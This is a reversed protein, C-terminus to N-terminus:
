KLYKEVFAFLEDVSMEVLQIDQLLQLKRKLEDREAILTDRVKRYDDKETRNCSAWKTFAHVAEVSVGAKLLIAQYDVTEEGYMFGELGCLEMVKEIDDSIDHDRNHLLNNEHLLKSNQIMVRQNDEELQRKIRGLAEIEDKLKQNEAATCGKTKELECLNINLEKVKSRWERVEEKSTRIQNDMDHCSSKTAELKDTLIIVKDVLETIVDDCHEPNTHINSNVLRLPVINENGDLMMLRRVSILDKATVKHVM